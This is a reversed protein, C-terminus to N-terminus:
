FFRSDPIATLEIEVLVKGLFAKRKPDWCCGYSSEYPNAATMAYVGIDSRLRRHFMSGSHCAETYIVMKGFRGKSHMSELANNLDRAYLGYDDPFHLFGSGGHDSYYVFIHDNPGTEM